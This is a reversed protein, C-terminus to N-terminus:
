RFTEEAREAYTHIPLSFSTLQSIYTKQREQRKTRDTIPLFQDRREGERKETIPAPYRDLPEYFMRFHSQDHHVHPKDLAKVTPKTAQQRERRKRRKRRSMSGQSQVVKTLEVDVV